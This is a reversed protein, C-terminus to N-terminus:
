AFALTPRSSASSTSPAAQYAWSGTGSLWSNRALGFQPHENGLIDPSLMRNANLEDIIDNKSV